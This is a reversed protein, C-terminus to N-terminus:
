GSRMQGTSAEDGPGRGWARTGLGEDGPGQGWARTGSKLTHYQFAPFPYNLNWQLPWEWSKLIAHQFAPPGPIGCLDANFLNSRFALRQLGHVWKVLKNEQEKSDLVILSCNSSLKSAKSWASRSCCRGSSQQGKAWGHENEGKSWGEYPYVRTPCTIESVLGERKEAHLM